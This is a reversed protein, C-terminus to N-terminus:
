TNFFFLQHPTDTGDNKIAIPHHKCTMPSIKGIIVSNQCLEGIRQNGRLLFFQSLHAM